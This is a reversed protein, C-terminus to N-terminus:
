VGGCHRENQNIQLNDAILDATCGTLATIALLSGSATEIQDGVQLESADTFRGTTADWIPDGGTSDLV